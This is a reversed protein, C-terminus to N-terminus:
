QILGFRVKMWYSIAAPVVQAKFSVPADPGMLYGNFGSESPRTQRKMYEQWLVEVVDYTEFVMRDIGTQRNISNYFSWFDKTVTPYFESYMYNCEPKSNKVLEWVWILYGAGALSDCPIKNHEMIYQKFNTKPHDVSLLYAKWMAEVEEFIELKRRWGNEIERQRREDEDSYEM